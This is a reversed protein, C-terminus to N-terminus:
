VCFFKIYFSLMKRASEVCHAVGIWGNVEKKKVVNQM